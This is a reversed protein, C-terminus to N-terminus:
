LLKGKDLIPQVKELWMEKAEQIYFGKLKFAGKSIEVKNYENIRYYIISDSKILAYMDISEGKDTEAVFPCIEIM